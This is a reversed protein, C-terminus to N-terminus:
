ISFQYHPYNSAIMVAVKYGVFMTVILMHTRVKNSFLPFSTRLLTVPFHHDTNRNWQGIFTCNDTTKRFFGIVFSLYFSHNLKLTIIVNVHQM